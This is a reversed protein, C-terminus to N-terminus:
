IEVLNVRVPLAALVRRPLSIRCRMPKFKVGVENQVYPQNNHRDIYNLM